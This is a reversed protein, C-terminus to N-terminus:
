FKSVFTYERQCLIMIAFLDEVINKTKESFGRKAEFRIDLSLHHGTEFFKVKQIKPNSTKLCTYIKYLRVCHRDINCPVNSFRAYQVRM